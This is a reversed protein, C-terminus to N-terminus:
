VRKKDCTKHWSISLLALNLSSLPNSSFHRLSLYSNHCTNKGLILFFLIFSSFINLLIKIFIYSIIIEIILFNIM